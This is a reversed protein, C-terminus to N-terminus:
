QADNFQIVVSLSALDCEFNSVFNTSLDEVSILVVIEGRRRKRAIKETFLNERMGLQPRSRSAIVVTSRKEESEGRLRRQSIAKQKRQQNGSAASESM